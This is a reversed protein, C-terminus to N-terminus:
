VRGDVELILSEASPLAGFRGNAKILIDVRPM